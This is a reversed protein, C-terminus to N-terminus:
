SISFDIIQEEGFIKFSNIKVMPSNIQCSYTKIIWQPGRARHKGLGSCSSCTTEGIRTLDQTSNNDGIRTVEYRGVKGNGYCRKCKVLDQGKKLRRLHKM